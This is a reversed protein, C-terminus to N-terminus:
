RIKLYKCYTKGRNGTYCKHDYFTGLRIYDHHKACYARQDLVLLELRKIRNVIKIKKGM